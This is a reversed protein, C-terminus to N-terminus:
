DFILGGCVNWVQGTVFSSLPSALFCIVAAVDEPKGIRKLACQQAYAQFGKEYGHPDASLKGMPTEILGPAVANVYVNFVGFERALSRTLAIIAGKSAAYYIGGTASGIKGATSALSVIKGYRKEIMGPLALKISNISGKLNVNMITDLTTDPTELIPTNRWIGASNILIDINGLDDHIQDFVRRLAGFDTVDATYAKCSSGIEKCERATAETHEGDLDLLALKAGLGAFSVATAYGIGGGAGTIVALQDRLSLEM